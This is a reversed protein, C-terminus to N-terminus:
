SSSKVLFKKLHEDIFHNPKWGKLFKDVVFADTASLGIGVATGVGGAGASDVFLGAGTFLAWRFAKAPLREIWTSATVERLYNKCLNEDPRQNKLWAKFKNSKDLLKLLDAFSKEGSNIAERIMFGGDLIFDQFSSIQQESNNRKNLLADVKTQLLFSNECSIALEASYLSSFFLNEEVGFLQALIYAPSVSSHTVSTRKHYIQNVLQFDLNTRISFGKQTKTIHFEFPHPIQYEPAVVELLRATAKKIYDESSFDESITKIITEPYSVSQALSIFRNGLRRGRGSRGTVEVFMKPVVNQLALHPASFFLPSHIENPSNSNLTQIGANNTQYSFKLFGSKLLELLTEPGCQNILQKLVLHNGVVRVDQYFLMTEALFGIDIPTNADNSQNRICITEFM